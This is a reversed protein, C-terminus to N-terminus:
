FWPTAPTYTPTVAQAMEGCNPCAAADTTPFVSSGCRSCQTKDIICRDPAPPAANPPDDILPNDSYGGITWPLGATPPAPAGTDYQQPSFPQSLTKRYGPLGKAANEGSM